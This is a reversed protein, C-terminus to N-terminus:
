DAENGDGKWQTGAQDRQAEEYDPDPSPYQGPEQSFFLNLGAGLRHPSACQGAEYRTDAPPDGSHQDGSKASEKRVQALAHQGLKGRGLDLRQSL